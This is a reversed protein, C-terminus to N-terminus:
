SYSPPGDIRTPHEGSSSSSGQGLKGVTSEPGAYNYSYNGPPIKERVCFDAMVGITKNWEVNVSGNVSAKYDCSVVSQNFLQSVSLYFYPGACLWYAECAGLFAKLGRYSEWGDPKEVPGCDRDSKDLNGLGNRCNTFGFRSCGNLADFSDPRNFSYSIGLETLNRGPNAM